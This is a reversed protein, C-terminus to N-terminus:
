CGTVPIARALGPLAGQPQRLRSALLGAFARDAGLKEIAVPLAALSLSKAMRKGLASNAVRHQDSKHDLARLLSPSAIGVLGSVISTLHFVAALSQLMLTPEPPHCRGGYGSSTTPGSSTPTNVKLITPDPSAFNAASAKESFVFAFGELASKASWNESCRLPDLSSM